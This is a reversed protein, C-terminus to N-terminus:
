VINPLGARLGPKTHLGMQHGVMVRRSDSDGVVLHIREVQLPM